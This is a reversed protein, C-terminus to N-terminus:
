NRLRGWSGFFPSKEQGKADARRKTKEKGKPISVESFASSEKGGHVHDDFHVEEEKRRWGKGRQVREAREGGV